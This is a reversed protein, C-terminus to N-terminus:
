LGANYQRLYLTITQELESHAEMGLRHVEEPSAKEHLATGLRVVAAFDQLVEEHVTPKDPEERAVISCNLDGAMLALARKDGTFRMIAMALELGMKSVSRDSYPNCVAYLSSPAMDMEAAVTKMGKHQAAEQLAAIVEPM